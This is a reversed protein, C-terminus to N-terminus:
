ADLRHKNEHYYTKLRSWVRSRCGACARSHEQNQWFIKNHLIFMRTIVEAPLNHNQKPEIEQVFEAAEKLLEISDNVTM